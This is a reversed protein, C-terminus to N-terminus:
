THKEIRIQYNGIYIFMKPRAWVYGDLAELTSPTFNWDRERETFGWLFKYKCKM